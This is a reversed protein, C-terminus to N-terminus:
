WTRALESALTRWVPRPYQTWTAAATVQVTGPQHTVRRPGRLRRVGSDRLLFRVARDREGQGDGRRNEGAVRAEARHSAAPGGERIHGRTRIGARARHKGQGDHLWELVPNRRPCMADAARPPAGGLGRARKQRRLRAGGVGGGGAGAAALENSEGTRDADGPIRQRHESVDHDRESDDKREAVEEKHNVLFDPSPPSGSM